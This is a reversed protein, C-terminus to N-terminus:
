IGRSRESHRDRLERFYARIDEIYLDPVEMAPFHGGVEFESWHSLTGDPNLMQRISDDANFVAFGIPALSTATWDRDAHSSEYIFNAATTGSDTFWYLTVNTLLQDCDVADEPLATAPNTWAEFKEVIWALQGAPSDALAYALTQPKTSQIALYGKGENQLEVLWALHERQRPSLASYEPSDEAPPQLPPGILAVSTPDTCIHLAIVHDPAIQSLCDSVGAGIDSGGAVYRDYGLRQMLEAWARATRTLEWGADSIPQSFGFGPLSPIVLHFADASDGGHGRPDTLPGILDLYEVFSSPYGHTLILPLAAPEPSQVHLFHITQGDILTTFQPFANLKAEQARWNFGTRWYDLLNQMYDRPVGRSWGCGPLQQPLRTCALRDDLDALDADPIDIRFPQLANPAPNRNQDSM